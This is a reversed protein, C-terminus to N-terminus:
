ESFSYTYDAPQRTFRTTPVVVLVGAGDEGIDIPIQARNNADLAIYEVTTVDDLSIWALEFTQPLVNRIRVWGEADWGGSDSEFDSFYGIEPISVDDIMMGEGNVAADTVYEFRLLIEKGAYASLDVTEEIWESGPTMSTYGWGFSNGNPDSDTGSPTRIIEWTAGDDLSALLFVYDWDEEIEYWTKFILNVPGSVETLDFARTLRMDSTDGKNSWFANEGSYPDVPLVQTNEAGDFELTHQGECLFKIYHVGYPRVVSNAKKSPCGRLAVTEQPQRLDSYDSYGFRGDAVSRDDLYNAIMWDRVVEDAGAPEGTLPDTIGAESLVLDLSELGNASHAVLDQTLDKGYRDLFYLMFLSAAGYNPGPDDPDWDNLSRDPDETYIPHRIATGFGNLHSALESLGENIWSSEDRDLNWHIMHQFEHALVGYTFLEDFGVTDANFYFMEHGNSDERVLPHLSDVSSFYGAISDGLGEAYLIYIHPDGDIGPNWESGFFERNIPYIRNEFTEALFQLDTPDYNVGDQIWFYAHDTAYQVTADVDFQDNTDQNGAHFVQQAGVQLPVSPPDLTAPVEISLGNLRRALDIPDAVPVEVSELTILTESGEPENTPSPITTKTPELSGALTPAPTATDIAPASTPTSVQALGCGLVTAAALVILGFSLRKMQQNEM